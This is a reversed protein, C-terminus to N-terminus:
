AVEHRVWLSDDRPIGMLNELRDFWQLEDKTPERRFFERFLADRGLEQAM